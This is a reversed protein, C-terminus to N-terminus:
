GPLFKPDLRHRGDSGIRSASQAIWIREPALWYREHCIPATAGNRLWAPGSEIDTRDLRDHHLTVPGASLWQNFVGLQIGEPPLSLLSPADLLALWAALQEAPARSQYAASATLIDRWFSSRQNSNRLVRRFGFFGQLAGSADRYVSEIAINSGTDTLWDRLIAPDTQEVPIADEWRGDCALQLGSRTLNETELWNM